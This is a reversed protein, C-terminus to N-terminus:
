EVRGGEGRPDVRVRRAALALVHRRGGRLGGGRPLLAQGLPAEGPVVDGRLLFAPLRGDVRRAGRGADGQVDQLREVRRRYGEVGGLLVQAVLDGADDGAQQAQELDVGIRQARAVVDQQRRHDLPCPPRALAQA